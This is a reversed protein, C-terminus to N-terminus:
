AAGKSTMDEFVKMLPRIPTTGDSTGAARRLHDCFYSIAPGPEWLEVFHGLTARTDFLVAKTGGPMALDMVLPYGSTAFAQMTGQYDEPIFCVHHHYLTGGAGHPIADRWPSPNNDKPQIFELQLDGWQGMALTLETQWERGDGYRGSVAMHELHFYPGSGFFAAHNAIAAQLDPVVHGIHAVRERAFFKRLM